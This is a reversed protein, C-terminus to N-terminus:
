DWRLTLLEKLRDREGFVKDYWINFYKRMLKKEKRAKKRKKKKRKLKAQHKLYIQHNEKRGTKIETRMKNRYYYGRHYNNQYIRIAIRNERYYKRGYALRAERNRKYYESSNNTM